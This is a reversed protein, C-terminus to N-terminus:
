KKAAPTPAAPAPATTDTGYTKVLYDTLPDVASDPIPAGFVKQMKVVTAKWYARGSTPPQYMVYEASHCTYCLATALVAGPQSSEALRKTEAPLTIEKAAVASASALALAAFLFVAAPKM